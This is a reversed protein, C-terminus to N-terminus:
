EKDEEHPYEIALRGEKRKVVFSDIHDTLYSSENALSSHCNGHDSTVEKVEFILRDAENISRSTSLSREAEKEGGRHYVRSGRTLNMDFIPRFVGTV